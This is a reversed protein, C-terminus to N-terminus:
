SRGTLEPFHARAARTVEAGSAASHRMGLYVLDWLRENSQLVHLPVTIGGCRDDLSFERGAGQATIVYHIRTLEYLRVWYRNIRVWEAGATLVASRGRYVIFAYVVGIILWVFWQTFAITGSHWVALLLLLGAPVLGGLWVSRASERYYELTPGQGEPPPPLRRPPKEVWGDGSHEVPAAPPRPEGTERDPRSPLEITDDGAM